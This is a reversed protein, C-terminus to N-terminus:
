CECKSTAQGFASRMDGLTKADLGVVGTPKGAPCSDMVGCVLPRCAKTCGNFDGKEFGDQSTKCVAHAPKKPNAMNMLKKGCGHCIGLLPDLEPLTTVIESCQSKVQVILDQCEVACIAEPDVDQDMKCTDSMSLILPMCAAQKELESVEDETPPNAEKLTGELPGSCAKLRKRAEKAFGHNPPCTAVLKEYDSLCDKECVKELESEEDGCVVTDLRDIECELDELEKMDKAKKSLIRQTAFLQQFAPDLARHAALPKATSTCSWM